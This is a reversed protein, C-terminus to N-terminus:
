NTTSSPAPVAEEDVVGEAQYDYVDEAHGVFCERCMVKGDACSHDHPDNAYGALILMTDDILDGVSYGRRILNELARVLAAKQKDTSM